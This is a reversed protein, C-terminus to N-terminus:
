SPLARRAALWLDAYDVDQCNDFWPGGNTYHIACPPDAPADYEGVLFNWTRDLSGIAHDALWSFRHLFAPTAANVLQPTLSKLAPHAGNFVIFSSWNKRPYAVQRHGDMKMAQRPTYEHQVVHVAKDPELQDVITRIDATFLFDCDCFISLDESAALYPTLFRTLSFATSAGTDAARTYLGLERLVDQKIPHM